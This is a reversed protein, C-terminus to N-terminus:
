TVNLTRDKDKSRVEIERRIVTDGLDESDSARSVKVSWLYKNNLEDKSDGSPWYRSCKTKGQENLNCLGLILTIKHQLIMRWFDDLTNPLPGQAAIIRERQNM